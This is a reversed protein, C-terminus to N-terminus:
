CTAETVAPGVLSASAPRVLVAGPRTPTMPVGSPRRPPTVPTEPLEDIHGLMWAADLSTVDELNANLDHQSLAHIRKFEKASMFQESNQGFMAYLLENQTVGAPLAM